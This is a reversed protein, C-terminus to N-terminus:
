ETLPFHNLRETDPCIHFSPSTECKPCTWCLAPSYPCFREEVAPLLELKGLAWGSKSPFAHCISFRGMLLICESYLCSKLVCYEMFIDFITCTSLAFCGKFFSSALVFAWVAYKGKKWGWGIGHSQYDRRKPCEGHNLCYSKVRLCGECYLYSCDPGWEFLWNSGDDWPGLHEALM